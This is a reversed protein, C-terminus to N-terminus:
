EDVDQITRRQRKSKVVGTSGRRTCIRYDDEAEIQQEESLIASNLGGKEYIAKGQDYLGARRCQRLWDLLDVESGPRDKDRVPSGEILAGAFRKIRRLTGAERLKALQEGEEKSPLRWTGSATKIFFEVLWDALLRRPKDHIPLYQEFLDSYHVGEHEPNKKLYAVIFKGLNAASADEKAQEAHDIQDATEKLYWRSQVHSGFLDAEKNHFLDEKVAEQVEDAVARLLADFDHAEMQGKRVLSSVLADYIRDKTAGPHITLFDRVIRGALEGFTAVDTNAPIIIQGLRWEGSKPKRLNLVLDRKTTKDATLQNRSKQSTDIFLATDNKDVVFGAEAVIDQVLQWTGESTDHYCLSMWRGPKLVRYCQNMVKLIRDEWDAEALGRTENVVIEEQLWKTDFGLWAEWAYNLEGYQVSDAYAPDTFIYDISNSPISTLDTSSQTSIMVSRGPESQAIKRYGATLNRVKGDLWDAVNYERGVQSIYYTGRLLQNPFRPDNVHGQMRSMALIIASIAFLCADRLEPEPIAKAKSVYAAIAWRNRKTFLDAVEKVGYYFLADRQYRSFGTMDYGQPYEYPILSEEIEKIKMLDVKEFADRKRKDRDNHQRVQPKAGCGELCRYSTLVPVSGFKEGQSRIVETHGKELCYPCANVQKTKGAHTQATAKACDFLPIRRLCRDCQFVQSYLTYEIVASGGCQSCRTGYLWEIESALATKLSRFASELKVPDVVTCYNKTIFTAAPSRDIAIAMRRELLAALATSGSGSFPDFVIDNQSTYHRIYERIADHPKKGQHYSHMNYIATAKSTTITQSFASVLYHDTEPDYPTSNEETFRRLNHNPQDGSYFGEPMATETENVVFLSKAGEARDKTM